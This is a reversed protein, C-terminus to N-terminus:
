QARVDFAPPLLEDHSKVKAVPHADKEVPKDKKIVPKDKPKDEPKEAPLAAHSVKENTSHAYSDKEDTSQTALLSL